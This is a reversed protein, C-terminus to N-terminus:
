VAKGHESEEAGDSKGRPGRAKTLRKRRVVEGSRKGDGSSEGTNVMSSEVLITYTAREEHGWGRETAGWYRSLTSLHTEGVKQLVAGINQMPREVAM